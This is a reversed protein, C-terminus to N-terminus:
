SAMAAAVLEEMSWPKRALGAAIAPTMNSIGRHAKCLNYYAFFLALAARLNSRKRSFGNSLRTLRRMGTRISWNMREVRSTCIRREIPNGWVLVRETSILRPPSYLRADEAGASKYEKILMAYDIRSGLHYEAAPPYSTFGDTSLQFRGSTARALKGMFDFTSWRDRRGLHWALVLKSKPDLAVFTYVDGVQPDNIKKRAKAREKMGVWGHMEDCEVDEVPIDQIMSSLLRECGEGVMVLLRLVTKKEAGSILAAGRVSAGNVLTKLILTAQDFPIRMDGLPRAPRESFTRRCTHCRFRQNGSRDKGHRKRAGHPCPTPTTEPTTTMIYSM